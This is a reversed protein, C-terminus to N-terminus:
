IGGRRALSAPILYTVAVPFLHATPSAYRAQIAARERAIEAPIEEARARLSDINRRLQDQESTTFLALQRTEPEHLEALISTRLETLITERDRMEKTARDQLFRRLGAMRDQQRAQLASQLAEAHQPWSRALQDLIAEPVPDSTAGALASQVEGVNLRAFRVDRLRGGATLIQEHLRQGDSGLALLRAHAFVAPTDLIHDPVQRATVRRMRSASGFAWVEARLLRMCVNCWGTAWTPLCSMTVGTPSIM